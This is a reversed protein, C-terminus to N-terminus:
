SAKNPGRRCCHGSGRGQGHKAGHGRHQGHHQGCEAPDRHVQPSHCEPCERPCGGGYPLQWRHGCADCVFTRKEVEVVMPIEGGKVVLRVGEVLLTAVKRRASTVLRTLTPRSIGMLEAAQEHYLGEYDALRLAEFEDLTLELRELERSPRGVPKFEKVPPLARIRRCCKPRPM